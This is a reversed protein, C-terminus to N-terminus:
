RSSSGAAPLAFRCLLPYHDSSNVKGRKVSLPVIDGRYMVQDIHFLMLNHNFTMTWGFNTDTYADKFGAETFQRWVWSGPVDNFDGCVIFPGEISQTLMTIDKAEDARGRFAQDLKRRIVGKFKSISSKAKQLNRAQSIVKQESASLHYSYLHVNALTIHRGQIDIDYVRFTYRYYKQPRPNDIRRNRIPYKSFITIDSQWGGYEHYPYRAELLARQEASLRDETFEKQPGKFEQLCLIDPDAQLAYTMGRNATTDGSPRLDYASAINYTMLSFTVDGPAPKKESGTPFNATLTDGCGFLTLIGLGGIIWRRDILWVISALATLAALFPFALAAIAPVVSIFPNVYGGYAAGLTLAYLVITAIKAILRIIPAIIM